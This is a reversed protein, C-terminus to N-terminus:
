VAESREESISEQRLSKKSRATKGEIWAKQFNPNPPDENLQLLNPDYALFSLLPSVDHAHLLLGYVVFFM